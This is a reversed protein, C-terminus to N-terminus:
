MRPLMRFPMGKRAQNYGRRGAEYLNVPADMLWGERRRRNSKDQRDLASQAFAQQAKLMDRAARELPGSWTTKRRKKKRRYVTTSSADGDTRQIVTIRNVISDM